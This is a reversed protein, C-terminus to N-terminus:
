ARQDATGDPGRVPIRHSQATRLLVDTTEPVVGLVLAAFVGTTTTRQVGLRSRRVFSVPVLVDEHHRSMWRWALGGLLLAVRRVLWGRGPVPPLYVKLRDAERATADEALVTLMSGLHVEALDDWAIDTGDIGVGRPSLRLAGFRDLLRLVKQLPAPVPWRQVLLESLSLAWEARLPYEPRALGDVLRSLRSAEDEASLEEDPLEEDPLEGDPLEPGPM